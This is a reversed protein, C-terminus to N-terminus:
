GKNGGSKIYPTFSMGVRVNVTGKKNNKIRAVIEPYYAMQQNFNSIDALVKNGDNMYLTIAEKDDKTPTYYVESIESLIDQKSQSLEKAFKNLADGKKWNILIPADIPLTKSSATLFSGNELIPIYNSDSKVYGVRHREEVNIVIKNPFRRKIKVSKIAPIKEVSQEASHLKLDWLHTGKTIGSHTMIEKKSVFYNGKVSITGILSLPSKFYIVTLILIFFIMIYLIFRRNSKQRRQERLKPIREEIPIVKNNAMFKAETVFM